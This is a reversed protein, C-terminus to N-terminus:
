AYVAECYYNGGSYVTRLPGTSVGNTLTLASPATMAPATVTVTSGGLEMPGPIGTGTWARIQTATFMNGSKVVTLADGGQGMLRFIPTTAGAFTMEASASVAHLKAGPTATGIGVNGGGMAMLVNGGATALNTTNTTDLNQYNGYPSPYYTSITVNEAYATYAAFGLALTVAAMSLKRMM